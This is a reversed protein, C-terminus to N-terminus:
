SNPDRVEKIAAVASDSKEFQVYGYGKCEHYKTISVKASMIPGFKEFKKHLDEHNWREELFGKVFICSSHEAKNTSTGKVFSSLSYPLTRCKVGKIVPYRYETLAKKAIIENNSLM